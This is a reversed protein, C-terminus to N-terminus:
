MLVIDYQEQSLNSEVQLSVPKGIFDILMALHQSEEDLFLDIVQQAAIVRFEDSHDRATAAGIAHHEPCSGTAAFGGADAERSPSAARERTTAHRKARPASATM